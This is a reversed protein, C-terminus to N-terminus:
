GMLSGGVRPHPELGRCIVEHIGKNTKIDNLINIKILFRWIMRAM